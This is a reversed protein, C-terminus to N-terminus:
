GSARLTFASIRTTANGLTDRATVTAVMRIRRRKVLLRRGKRSLRFGVVVRQGAKAEFSRPGLKLVRRM